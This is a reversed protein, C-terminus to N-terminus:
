ADAIKEMETIEVEPSTVIESFRTLAESPASGRVTVEGYEKSFPGLKFSIRWRDTIRGM